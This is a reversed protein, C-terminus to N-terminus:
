SVKWDKGYNDIGYIVEEHSNGEYEFNVLKSKMAPRSHHIM